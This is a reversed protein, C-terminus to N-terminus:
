DDELFQKVERQFDELSRVIVYKFGDNTIKQQWEKQTDSQRGETTKMEILLAGYFRNSKLLILDAVGALVGEEKLKAGIIVDRKSGNPVAFLNHKMKPYQLRYWRVCAAQLKHELDRPKRRTKPQMAMMEDFTM